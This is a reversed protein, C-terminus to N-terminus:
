FKFFDSSPSFKNIANGALIAAGMTWSPKEVPWYKKDKFVYGTWLLGDDDILNFTDQLIKEAENKLGIKTLALVLEASEAATVWPEEKVCKCGLGEVVFENWKDRILEISDSKSFAGSLIPYYWDMSYREKSEWNRDFRFPKNKLCDRLNNIQTDSVRDRRDIEHAIKKYCLLSMYISSCGTKLSDDLWNKNDKAWFFDGHESQASLTFEIAADLVPWFEDLFNKDNFNKFHHWMGVAIYSSFNTEKLNNKESSHFLSLWSGDSEQYARLWNYANKSEAEFGLVDLGMASEIHDWPDLKSNPEWRIGGESDQCSLIYKAFNIYITKDFISKSSNKKSIHLSV